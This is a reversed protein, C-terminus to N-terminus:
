ISLMGAAELEDTFVLRWAGSELDAGLQLGGVAIRKLALVKLPTNHVPDVLGGFLRRIHRNRGADLVVHLRTKHAAGGMIDVSIAKCLGAPTAVGVLAQQIHETTVVGRVWVEYVKHLSHPQTLTAMVSEAHRTSTTAAQKVFLLLGRSDKDLRGAPMWRDNYAWAPLLDYVTKRNREDARTTIYGKPKHLMLVFPQPKVATACSSFCGRGGVGFM